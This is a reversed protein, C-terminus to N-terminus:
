QRAGCITLVIIKIRLALDGTGVENSKITNIYIRAYCFTKTIKGLVTEPQCSRLVTNQTFTTPIQWVSLLNLSLFYSM